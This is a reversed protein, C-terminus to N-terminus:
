KVVSGAWAACGTVFVAFYKIKDITEEHENLCPYSNTSLHVAQSTRMIENLNVNLM